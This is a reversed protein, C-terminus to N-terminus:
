SISLVLLGVAIYLLLVPYIALARREPQIAGKLFPYSSWSSWCIAVLVLVSRYIKSTSIGSLLTAAVLPFICYGLLSLSQLFIINGGLLLVNLTLVVAGISLVVFVVAFVTGSDKGARWSLAIALFLVFFMPGWLDWDRLVATPSDRFPNPFLVARLNSAVRLLDRKLTEWVPETLTSETYAPASSPRPGQSSPAASLSTPPPPPPPTAVPPPPKYGTDQIVPVTASSSKSVPDFLQEIEDMDQGPRGAM